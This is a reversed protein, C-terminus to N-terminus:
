SPCQIVTLTDPAITFETGPNAAELQWAGPAIGSLDDFNAEFFTSDTFTNSSALIDPQGTQTLKATVNPDFGSGTVAAVTFSFPCNSVAPGPAYTVSNVPPGPPLPPPPPVFLLADVMLQIDDCDAAGDGNLDANAVHAPDLPMEMLVAVLADLDLLDADGDADVDGLISVDFTFVVSADATFQPAMDDDLISAVSASFTYIGPPLVGVKAVALSNPQGPDNVTDFFITQAGPGTLRISGGTGAAINPDSPMAQADLQGVAVFKSLNNSLPLEFTVTFSSNASAIILGVGGNTAQISTSASGSMSSADIQSQQAATAHGSGAGCPQDAQVTGNFPGFGMAVDFDSVDGCPTIVFVDASRNQSIPIVIQGVSSRATMLVATLGCIMFLNTRLRVSHM